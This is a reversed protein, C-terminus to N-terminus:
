LKSLTNAETHAMTPSYRKYLTVVVAGGIGYNQQLGVKCSEVQRKGALGRLQWNVEACQGLGTAGIPHGKSELGGSPNVVWRKGIRCVEGGSKNPIWEASDILDGGKGEPCMGLAEYLFLENPSFCDHLEVIDVDRISLGADRLCRRSAEQSMAYGCLNLFNHNFSAPTDTSMHQSLIEVAKDELHHKKMFEESCVVAAAAGDGTPAAMAVTIPECMMRKSLIEQPKLAQKIAARPNNMGHRRNKSAIKAFHEKTTGHERCHDQAAYAFMKIINSTIANMRSSLPGTGVGLHELSGVHRDMPSARDEFVESLGHDMKEFGLALTCDYGGMVLLRAMMLATSGSSCHNNVNFVPVGTLGLEYVARQGSTSQGYCYSAVAAEVQSYHVGADRLAGEGAERGMDPYDWKRTHPLQFKTMGVGVVFVRRKPKAGREAM